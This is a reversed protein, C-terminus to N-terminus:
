SVESSILECNTLSISTTFTNQLSEDPDSLVVFDIVGDAPINGNWTVTLKLYSGDYEETVDFCGEHDYSIIHGDSYDFEFVVTEGFTISDAYNILDIYGSGSLRIDIDITNFAEIDITVDKFPEYVILVGTDYSLKTWTYKAGDVVIKDPLVYGSSAQVNVTLTENTKLEYTSMDDTAGLLKLEVNYATETRDPKIGPIDPILDPLDELPAVMAVMVGLCVVTILIACVALIILDKKNNKM